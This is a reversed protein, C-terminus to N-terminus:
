CSLGSLFRGKTKCRFVSALSVRLTNFLHNDSTAPPNSGSAHLFSAQKIERKNIRQAETTLCTKEDRLLPLYFLTDIGIEYRATIKMHLVVGSAM